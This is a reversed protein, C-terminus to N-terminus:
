CRYRDGANERPVHTFPTGGVLLSSSHVKAIHFDGSSGLWSVELAVRSM